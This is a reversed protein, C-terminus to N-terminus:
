LFLFSIGKSFYHTMRVEWKANTSQMLMGTLEIKLGPNWDPHFTNRGLTEIRVHCEKVEVKIGRIMNMKEAKEPVKNGTSHSFHPNFSLEHPLYPLFLM